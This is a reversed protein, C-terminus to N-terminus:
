ERVVTCIPPWLCILNAEQLCQFSWLHCKSHALYIIHTNKAKNQKKRFLEAVRYSEQLDLSISYAVWPWMALLYLSLILVWTGRVGFVMSIVYQWVVRLSCIPDTNLVTLCALKQSTTTQGGIPDGRMIRHTSVGPLNGFRSGSYAELPRGLGWKSRSKKRTQKLHVYM